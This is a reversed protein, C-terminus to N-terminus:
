WRAIWYCTDMMRSRWVMCGGQRSIRKDLTKIFELQQKDNQVEALLTNM